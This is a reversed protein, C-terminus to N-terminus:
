RGATNRLRREQQRGAQSIRVVGDSQPIGSPVERVIEMELRQLRMYEITARSLDDALLKSIEDTSRRTM